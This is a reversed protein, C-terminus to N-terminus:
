EGADSVRDVFDPYVLENSQCSCLWDERCAGEKVWRHFTSYPWHHPCQVLGHKIPNYHVYDMHNAMDNQDRILHEWFRRQWIGPERKDQMRRTRQSHPENQTLWKQSFYRKIMSWRGSFDNDNEPMKWVAHLHDPLLVWGLIEFPKEARTKEIAQRLATRAFPDCLFKQNRYTKVTFFYTGGDRYYRRYKSM